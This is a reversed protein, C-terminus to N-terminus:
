PDTVGTVWMGNGVFPTSADIGRSRLEHYIAIADRCIFCVSIGDGGATRGSRFEQLMVAAGGLELWCWRIKGDPMWKNTMVFGLGSVYFHLSADMNSVAFFPVAQRVTTENSMAHKLGQRRLSCSVVHSRVQSAPTGPM